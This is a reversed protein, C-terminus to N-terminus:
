LHSNESNKRSFISLILVKLKTVSVFLLDNAKAVDDPLFKEVVKRLRDSIVFGPSMAGLTKDNVEDAM